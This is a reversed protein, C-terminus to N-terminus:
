GILQAVTTVAATDYVYTGDQLEAFGQVRMQRNYSALPFNNIEVVVLYKAGFDAATYTTGGTTISSYVTNANILVSYQDGPTYGDKNLNTQAAIVFGAKIYDLSNVGMVLRVTTTPSTPTTGASVQKARSTGFHSLMAIAETRIVNGFDDRIEKAGERTSTPARTIVEHTNLQWIAYLTKNASTLTVKSVINTATTDTSWGLFSYGTRSPVGLTSLTFETNVNLTQVSPL